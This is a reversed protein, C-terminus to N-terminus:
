ERMREESLSNKITEFFGYFPSRSKTGIGHIFRTMKGNTLNM